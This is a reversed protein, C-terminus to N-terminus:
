LRLTKQKLNISKHVMLLYIVTQEMIICASVFNKNNRTFNISYLKEAYITTGNIGQVFDKGLILINNQKNNAHSSSSMDAGFIICKRGVGDGFSFEEKRDFGIGYGSYKYQVIDANKTLSVAGFM